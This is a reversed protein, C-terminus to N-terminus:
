RCGRPKRRTPRRIWCFGPFFLPHIADIGPIHALDWPDVIRQDNFKGIPPHLLGARAGAGEAQPVGPQRPQLQFLPRSGDHIQAGTPKLREYVERLTHM